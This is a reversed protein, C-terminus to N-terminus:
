FRSMLRDKLELCQEESVVSCARIVNETYQANARQYTEETQSELLKKAEKVTKNIGFGIGGFPTSIAFNGGSTGPAQVTVQGPLPAAQRPINVTTSDGGVTTNTSNGTSGNTNSNNSSQGQGQGQGQGNSLTNGGSSSGGTTIINGGSSSNGGAGGAGGASNNSINGLSAASNGFQNNAVDQRTVNSISSDLKNATASSSSGIYGNNSASNGNSTLVNSLSGGQPQYNNTETYNDAVTWGAQSLTLATLIAFSFILKNKM